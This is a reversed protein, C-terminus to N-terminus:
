WTYEKASTEELMSREENRQKFSNLSQQPVFFARERGNPASVHQEVKGDIGKIWGCVCFTPAVGTVLVFVDTDSDDNRIILKGNAYKTSRIQVNYDCDAKKFSNVSASWFINRYKCYAMEAAAGEIDIGWFDADKLGHNDSRSRSKSECRRKCGILSAVAMEDETLTVFVGM